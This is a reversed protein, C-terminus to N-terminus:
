AAARTIWVTLATFNDHSPKRAAGALVAAELAQMWDHPTACVRLTSELTADDVYEWLGDTCILLVDGAQLPWAPEQVSSILQDEETGLASYLESRSPHGRASEPALHGADVLSQVLSHDVTRMAIRGARFAYVRTDGVHCWRAIAQDLNIFLAALTTHMHATGGRTREAIVTRNSRVILERLAQADDRPNAAFAGIVYRVVLKSAVDGGGHGGAGDAVVCCLRSDSHWHGCADENQDRGGPRTLLALELEIPETM